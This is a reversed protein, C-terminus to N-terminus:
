QHAGIVVAFALLALIAVHALVIVGRPSLAAGFSPVLVHRDFGLLGEVRDRDLEGARAQQQARQDGVQEDVVGVFSVMGDVGQDGLDVPHRLGSEGPSLREGAGLVGNAIAGHRQDGIEPLRSAGDLSRAGIRVDSSLLDFPQSAEGSAPNSCGPQPIYARLRTGFIVRLLDRKPQPAVSAAAIAVPAFLISRRSLDTM